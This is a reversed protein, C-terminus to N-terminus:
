FIYYARPESCNHMSAREFLIYQKCLPCNFFYKKNKQSFCLKCFNSEAEIYINKGFKKTCCECLWLLNPAPIM